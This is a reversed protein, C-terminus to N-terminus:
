GGRSRNQQNPRMHAPGGCRVLWFLESLVESLAKAILHRFIERDGQFLDASLTDQGICSFHPSKTWIGHQSFVHQWASEDPRVIRSGEKEKMWPFFHHFCLTKDWTLRIHEFGGTFGVLFTGCADRRIILECIYSSRRVNRNYNLQRVETPTSFIVQSLQQAERGTRYQGPSCDMPQKRSGM